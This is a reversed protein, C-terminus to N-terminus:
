RRHTSKKKKEKRGKLAKQGGRGHKGGKKEGLVQLWFREFNAGVGLWPGRGKGQGAEGNGSGKIAGVVGKRKGGGRKEEKVLNVSCKGGWTSGKCIIVL